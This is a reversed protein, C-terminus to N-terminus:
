NWDKIQSVLEDLSSFHLYHEGEIVVVRSEPSTVIEKHYQEWQPFIDCNDQALVYLVPVSEPFKMDYTVDMNHAMNKMENMQTKNLQTSCYLALVTDRDADTLTPIQAMTQDFSLETMIRYIGTKYMLGNILKYATYTNEPKAVWEDRDKQKPITGDIGIFAEVEDPFQNAYYLSYLSGISHGIITYSDYGLYQMLGHLEECYNEVTRERDTGDSLGVGLPEVLVFKYEDSLEKVFTDFEYHVTPCGFGPLVVAVKDSPSDYFTYNMKEGEPTTYFEGYANAVSDLDRKTLIRHRITLIAVLVLITLLIIGIVKLITRGIRRPKKAKTESNEMIRGKKKAFLNETIVM